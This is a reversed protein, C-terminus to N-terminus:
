VNTVGPPSSLLKWLDRAGEMFNEDEIRFHIALLYELQYSNITYVVDQNDDVYMTPERYRKWDHRAEGKLITLKQGPTLSHGLIRVEMPDIGLFKLSHEIADRSAGSCISVRVGEDLLWKAFGTPPLAKAYLLIMDRYALNKGLHDNMAKTFSGSEKPLWERWPKGWADEPMEIGVHKYAECVAKKSDILCGDLDFIVSM